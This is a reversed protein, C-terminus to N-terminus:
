RNCNHSKPAAGTMFYRFDGLFYSQCRTGCRAVDKTRPGPSLMWTGCGGTPWLHYYRSVKRACCLNAQADSGMGPTRSPQWWHSDAPGGTKWTHSWFFSCFSCKRYFNPGSNEWWFAAIKKKLLLYNGSFSPLYYDQGWNFSSLQLYGHPGPSCPAAPYQGFDGLFPWFRTQRKWLLWLSIQVRFRGTESVFKLLPWLVSPPGLHVLISRKLGFHVLISWNPGNQDRSHSFGTRFLTM